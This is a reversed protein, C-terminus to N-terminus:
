KRIFKEKPVGIEILLQEAQKQKLSNRIAIIVKDYAQDLLHNIEEVEYGKKQYELYDADAWGMIKKSPDCKLQQYLEQGYKGAGYIIVKQQNRSFFRKHKVWKKYAHILIGVISNYNKKWFLMMKKDHMNMQLLSYSLNTGQYYNSINETTKWMYINFLDKSSLKPAYVMCEEVGDEHPINTLFKLVDNSPSFQCYQVIKEVLTFETFDELDGWKGITKSFENIGRIYGEMGSDEWLRNETQFLQPVVIDEKRYYGITAGHPARCFLEIFGTHDSSFAMFCLDNSNRSELLDYYFAKLQMQFKDPFLEKLHELTYGSGHLDVFSFKDDSLNMEQDLYASLLKKKESENNDIRWAVRSGYIYRTEINIKRENIISDAIQKLVYGDRAIFYLRDIQMEISKCIIWCVYPYLIMGGISAGIREEQTLVPNEMRVLKAKSLLLQMQLSKKIDIIKKIDKEWSPEFDNEILRTDIGLMHPINYDSIKNDGYHIWSKYSINEKDHVLIYLSGSSKAKKYQSSVYISLKEFVPDINLLLKRIVEEDLYMDSILIVKEGQKAYSKLLNINKQIPYTYEMEMQIEIKMIQLADDESIGLINILETYIEKLSVEEVGKQDAYYRADKEARLRHEFFSNNKFDRALKRNEEKELNKQVLLFIGSPHITKRMILTDFIDFSVM